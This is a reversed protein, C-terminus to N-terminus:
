DSQAANAPRIRRVRHNLTDGVFVTGDAAVCIGHPRNLLAAPGPGDDGGFGGHAPGRGAITEIIGSDADIRRIVQNETDAIFINGQADLAIGKPGDFSAGTAAEGDGSYGRQGTGAVHRLMPEADALSMRWVSHGERLAIWLEHNQVWLARPGLLPHGAARQGQQPPTREGNGAITVIEQSKLDVRRVRHNGIDAILLGGGHDLVISHPRDFLARSAPGGDGGFGREGTGALTSILGTKLQVRRVLHNQMEVFYMYEDDFRVEYPENLCAETAPGGDGSYGKRGNGAVVAMQGSSRDLRWVRHNRVETIYLGGDPGIEVGFTDGINTALAPGQHPGPEPLGTGAVTDIIWDAAGAPAVSVAALAIAASLRCRTAHLM